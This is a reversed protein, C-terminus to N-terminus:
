EGFYPKTPPLDVKVLFEKAREISIRTVHDRGDPDFHQELCELLNKVHYEAAGLRMIYEMYREYDVM